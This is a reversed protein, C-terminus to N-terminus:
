SRFMPNSSNNVLFPVPSPVTRQSLVGLVSHFPIIIRLSLVPRFPIPCFPVLRFPALVSHNLFFSCSCFLRASPGQELVSRFLKLFNPVIPHQQLIKGWWIMFIKWFKFCNILFKLVFFDVFNKLPFRCNYHDWM